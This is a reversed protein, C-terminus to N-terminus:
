PGALALAGAETLAIATDGTPVALPGCLLRSTRCYGREVLSAIRPDSPACKLVKNGERLKSLLSLEWPTLTKEM